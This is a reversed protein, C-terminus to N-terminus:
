IFLLVLNSKYSNKKSYWHMKQTHMNKKLKGPGGFTRLTSVFEVITM